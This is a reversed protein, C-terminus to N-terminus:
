RSTMWMPSSTWRRIAMESPKHKPGPCKAQFKKITAKQEGAVPIDLDNSNQDFRPLFSDAYVYLVLIGHIRARPLRIPTSRSKFANSTYGHGLGVTM